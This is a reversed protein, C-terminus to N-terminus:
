GERSDRHDHPQSYFRGAPWACFGMILKPKTDDVAYNVAAADV